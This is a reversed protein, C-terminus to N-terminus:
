GLVDLLSQSLQDATRFVADSAQSQIGAQGLNVMEASLDVNDQTDPLKAVRAAVSNFQTTARNISDLAVALVNM